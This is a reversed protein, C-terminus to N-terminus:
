NEVAKTQKTHSALIDHIYRSNVYTKLNDGKGKVFRM